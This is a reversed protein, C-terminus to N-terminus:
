LAEIGDVLLSIIQEKQEVTLREGAEKMTRTFRKLGIVRRILRSQFTGGAPKKFSFVNSPM